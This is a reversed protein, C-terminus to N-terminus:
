ISLKRLYYLLFVISLVFAVVGNLQSFDKVEFLNSLYKGLTLCPMSEFQDPGILRFEICIDDQTFTLNYLQIFYFICTYELDSAYSYIDAICETANFAAHRASLESDYACLTEAQVPQEFLAYLCDPLSFTQKLAM